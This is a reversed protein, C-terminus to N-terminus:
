LDLNLKTPLCVDYDEKEELGRVQVAVLSRTMTMTDEEEKDISVCPEVNVM